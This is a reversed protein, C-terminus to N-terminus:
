LRIRETDRALGALVAFVDTAHPAPMGPFGCHDSRAFVEAGADEAVLALDRQTEYTMGLQPEIMLGLQV